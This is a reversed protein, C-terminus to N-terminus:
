STASECHAAVAQSRKLTKRAIVVDAAAGFDLEFGARKFTAIMRRNTRDTEGVVEALDWTQAIELCYETLMGGLGRGQWADAVLVAYEADSHDADCMLQGVGILTPRGEQEIEAVVALERDYDIFCYRAAMEHSMIKFLYRFRFRISEASCGSMMDHWLPEDEPKIPRLTVRTGDKLVAPRVLEEPYPRIALHSYPRQPEDVAQRDIRVRADLAIVDRPTALLPNVDIEAIQPCDAVLYSFRIVTRILGDIDVPLRGRYGALIPWSRLSELMRRVMRENLPPLGLGRDDIVEAAVGGAGLMVVAGFVPDKRSGLILEFGDPASIMPQVSVGEVVADPRMRTVNDVIRDFAQRVDEESSVNLVVGGVENKHTIQPSVIKLAVPFGIRRAVAVAEDASEVSSPKAISIGYADLLEKSTAESLVDQPHRVIANLLERQKQRDVSFDILVNRPTEYLTEQSRTYSVWHMFAHVANKPTTYTPIGAANLLRIGEHVARGGMWVALLLKRSRQALQVLAEAIKTPETAAQPTLIILVADVGSDALVVDIAATFREAPADGLIDVPNAHSWYRPLSDSLKAITEESLRALVGKCGILCDTAVVGPGGANTIIALRPGAPRPQRALLQACDFMDDIESVRVIGAREFAAEYVADVGALAGTHSVAAEASEIFRGAKYVVIPKEKTIARAASMFQRAGSISELFLVISDTYPDGAFYDILDGVSVELMNGISVFHSFGIEEEIAWDLASTCLTGSQSVFAVRGEKPTAGALSANLKLHPVVVGLSKPGLIRLQDYRAREQEVRRELARGEPGVERFGPSTIVVGSIGSEGCERVVSPVAEASTCVVALDPPESLDILRERSEVQPISASPVQVSFVPGEFGSDVLNTLVTCAAATHEDDGGGVVVIHRPRLIKDLNRVTM